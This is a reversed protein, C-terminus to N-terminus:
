RAFYTNRTQCVRSAAASEYLAKATLYEHKRSHSEDTRALTGADVAASAALLALLLVLSQTLLRAM